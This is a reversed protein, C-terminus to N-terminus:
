PFALSKSVLLFMNLFKKVNRIKTLFSTFFYFKQSKEIKKKNIKKKKM